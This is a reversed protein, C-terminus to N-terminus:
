VPTVRSRVLLAGALVLATTAFAVIAERQEGTLPVGFAILLNLLAVLVGVFVAPERRILDTM